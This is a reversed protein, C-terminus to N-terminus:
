CQRREQEHVQNGDTLTAVVAAILRGEDTAVTKITSEVGM